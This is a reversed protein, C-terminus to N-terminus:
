KSPTEVNDWTNAIDPKYNITKLYSVFMMCVFYIIHIVVLGILAQLIVKM